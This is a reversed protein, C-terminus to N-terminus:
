VGDREKERRIETVTGDKSIIIVKSAFLLVEVPDHFRGILYTGDEGAPM